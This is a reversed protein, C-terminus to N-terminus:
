ASTKTFSIPKTARIRGIFALTLGVAEMVEPWFRVLEDLLEPLIETDIKVGYPKLFSAIAAIVIGWLTLSKVPNKM